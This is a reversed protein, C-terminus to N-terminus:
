PLGLTILRWDHQRRKCAPAAAGKDGFRMVVGSRAVHRYLEGLAWALARECEASDDVAVLLRRGSSSPAAEASGKTEPMPVAARGACAWRPNLLCARQATHVLTTGCYSHAPVTECCRVQLPFLLPCKRPWDLTAPALVHERSSESSQRWLGSYAM